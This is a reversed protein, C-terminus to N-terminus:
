RRSCMARRTKMKRMGPTNENKAHEEITLLDNTEEYMM